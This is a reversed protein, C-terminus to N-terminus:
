DQVFLFPPCISHVCRSHFYFAAHFIAMVVFLMQTECITQLNVAFVASCCLGTIIGNAFCEDLVFLLVPIVIRSTMHSFPAFNVM